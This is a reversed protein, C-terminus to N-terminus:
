SVANFCSVWPRKQRLWKLWWPCDVLAIATLGDVIWYNSGQLCLEVHFIVPLMASSIGLDSAVGSAARADGITSLAGVLLVATVVM